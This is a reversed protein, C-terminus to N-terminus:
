RQVAQHLISKILTQYPMGERLARAKIRSQRTESTSIRMYGVLKISFRRPVKQSPTGKSWPNQLTQLSTRAPLACTDCFCTM